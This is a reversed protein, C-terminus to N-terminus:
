VRTQSSGTHVPSTASGLRAKKSTHIQQALEDPMQTDEFVAKKLASVKERLGEDQVFAYYHVRLIDIADRQLNTLHKDITGELEAALPEGVKLSFYREAAHGKLAEPIHVEDGYGMDFLNIGAAAARLYIRQKEEPAPHGSEGEWYHALLGGLGLASLKMGTKGFERYEM